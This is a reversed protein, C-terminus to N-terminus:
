EMPSAWSRSALRWALWLEVNEFGGLRVGALADEGATQAVQGVLAVRVLGCLFLEGLAPVNVFIEQEFLTVQEDLQFLDHVLSPQIEILLDCRFDQLVHAVIRFNTSLGNGTPFTM